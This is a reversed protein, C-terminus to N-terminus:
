DKEQLFSGAVAISFLAAFAGAIGAATNAPVGTQPLSALPAEEDAIICAVDTDAKALVAFPIGFAMFLALLAALTKKRMHKEM